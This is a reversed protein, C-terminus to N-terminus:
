SAGMDLLGKKWLVLSVARIWAAQRSKVRRFVNESGDFQGEVPKTFQQM